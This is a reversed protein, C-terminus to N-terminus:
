VRPKMPKAYFISAVCGTSVNQYFNKGKAIDGAPLANALVITEYQKGTLTYITVSIKTGAALLKGTDNSVEVPGAFEKAHLACALTVTTGNLGAFSPAAFGAVIGAAALAILTKKM